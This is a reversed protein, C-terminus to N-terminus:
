GGGKKARQLVYMQATAGQPSEFKKPREGRGAAALCLKLKDGDLEYIGPQTVTQGGLDYSLDIAKPTQDPALKYKATLLETMGRQVKWEDGTFVMQTGKSGVVPRGGEVASVIDWTGKLLEQDAPRKEGKDDASALEAAGLIAAGAFALWCARHLCFM